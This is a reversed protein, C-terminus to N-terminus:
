EEPPNTEAPLELTFTAGCGYGESSATLSGGMERAALAGSHLGFGHGDRRTTFGYGFIRTLNAPSIGIGNDAVAIRVYEEGEPAITVTIQKDVQRTDDLAYRANRMVNTLIQLVKHRDVHVLPAPQYCRRMTVGHREFEGVNLAIADEVLTEASLDEFVSSVKAYSQQMAIISKIHDLNRSLQDVEQLLEGNEAVLHEGLNVLYRPLKKGGPDQTLYTALDGNRECLLTAAEGLKPTKSRRLKELVLCVSVNLSNLVNGVNHLVGTAVEAMGALRSSEILKQQSIRLAEEAELHATMDRAITSFYEVAGNANKHAIIVQSVHVEQGERHVLATEGAWAGSHIAGPIGETSVIRAAWRPHVDTVRMASIDADNRLGIMRRAARNLYLMQGTVSSSAVFDPTAELIATLRAQAEEASKREAIEHRLTRVQRKLEQQAVQLASDQAQIQTLMQNFAETLIGLERGESDRARVTYDKDLAIRQAVGALRLVPDAIVGQFRKSLLYALLLSAALVLAFIGSYLTVLEDYVGTFGAEFALYGLPRGDQMVLKVLMARDGEFVIEPSHALQQTEGAPKGIHALRRGDISYLSASTVQPVAKLESLGRLAAVSDESQLAAASSNAVITALMELQHTFNRKIAFVQFGFLVTCALLLVISSTLLIVTTVQQQIPRHRLPQMAHILSPPAKVEDSTSRSKGTM